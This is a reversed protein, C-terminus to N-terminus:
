TVLILFNSWSYSTQFAFDLPKYNLRYFQKPEFGGEAAIALNLYKDLDLEM